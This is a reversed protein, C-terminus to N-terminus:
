GAGIVLESLRELEHCSGCRLAQYREDNEDLASGGIVRVEVDRSKVGLDLRLRCLMLASVTAPGGEPPGIRYVAVAGAIQFQEAQLQPRAAVIPVGNTNLGTGDPVRVRM